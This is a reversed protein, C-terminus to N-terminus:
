LGHNAKNALHQDYTVAFVTEGTEPDSLFYWYPNSEPYIAADIASLGPNGIPGPPLGKNIYTNYPSEVRTEEFSHQIKNKGLVYKVTADSELGQGAGIRRWFLDAVKRRDADSTVENEVISAMTLSEHVTRGSKRVAERRDASFKADFNALMKSVIDEATANKFFSYTDPFLYGELSAGEPLQSLAAYKVRWEPSPAGVLRLFEEGPLGSATLREAMRKSEWGEPFTVDVSLSEVEGTTLKTAIDPVTLRGSLLYDGAITKGRLDEKWIYYVFFWKSRILGASELREGIVPANDGRNVRFAQEPAETRSHAAQYSFAGFAAALVALVVFFASGILRKGSM